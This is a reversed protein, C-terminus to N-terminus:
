TDLAATLEKRLLNEDQLTLTGSGYYVKLIMLSPISLKHLNGHLMKMLDGAMYNKSQSHPQLM